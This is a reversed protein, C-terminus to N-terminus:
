ARHITQTIGVRALNVAGSLYTDAADGGGNRGTLRFVEIGRETEDIESIVGIWFFSRGNAMTRDVRVTDGNKITTM